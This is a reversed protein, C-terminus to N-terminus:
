KVSAVVASASFWLMKVLFLSLRKLAVSSIQNTMLILKAQLLSLVVPDTFCSEFLICFHLSHSKLVSVSVDSQKSGAIDDAQM